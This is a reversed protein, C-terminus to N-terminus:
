KLQKVKRCLDDFKMKNNLYDFWEYKDRQNEFSITSDDKACWASLNELSDFVPSLPGYGCINNIAGLYLFSWLQFGDGIMPELKQWAQYAHFHKSVIGRTCYDCKGWSFNESGDKNITYDIGAAILISRMINGHGYWGISDQVAGLARVIDQFNDGIDGVGSYIISYPPYLQVDCDTLSHSSVTKLRHTNPQNIAYQMKHLEFSPKVRALRLIVDRDLDTVCEVPINAAKIIVDVVDLDPWPWRLIFTDEETETLYTESPCFDLPRRWSAEGAEVIRFVFEELRRYAPSRGSGYCKNCKVDHPNKYGSWVKGLPYNFTLPVRKVLVM